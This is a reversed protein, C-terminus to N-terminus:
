AIGNQHPKGVLTKHRAIGQTACFKNFKSECFEILNDQAEKDKECNTKLL